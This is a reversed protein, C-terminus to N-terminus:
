LNVIKIYYNIHLIIGKIMGMCHYFILSSLKLVILLDTFINVLESNKDEISLKEFILNIHEAYKDFSEENTFFRNRESSQKLKIDKMDFDLLQMLKILIEETNLM